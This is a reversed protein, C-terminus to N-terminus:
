DRAAVGFGPGAPSRLGVFERDFRGAGSVSVVVPHRGVGGIAHLSDDRHVDCQRRVPATRRPLGVTTRAAHRVGTAACGACHGTAGAVAHGIRPLRGYVDEGCGQRRRCRHNGRLRRPRADRDRRDAPLHRAALTGTAPTWNRLFHQRRRHIPTQRRQLPDGGRGGPRVHDSQEM